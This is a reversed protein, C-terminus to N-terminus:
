SSVGGAVGSGDPDVLYSVFPMLSSITTPTISCSSFVPFLGCRILSSAVTRDLVFSATALYTSTEDDDDDHFVSPSISRLEALGPARREERRAAYMLLGPQDAKDGQGSSFSSM